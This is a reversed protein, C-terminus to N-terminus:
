PPDSRTARVTSSVRHASAPVWARMWGPSRKPRTPSCTAPAARNQVMLVGIKQPDILEPRAVLAVRLKSGGSQAWKTAMSYRAFVSPVAFGTFGMTNALLDALGLERATHIAQAVMDVAQEFTVQAIPRYFGRSGVVEFSDMARMYNGGALTRRLGQSHM